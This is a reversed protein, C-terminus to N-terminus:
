VVVRAQALAEDSGPAEPTDDDDLIDDRVMRIAEPNDICMPCMPVEVPDVEFGCESHVYGFFLTDWDEGRPARAGCAQCQPRYYDPDHRM